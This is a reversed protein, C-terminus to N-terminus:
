LLNLVLQHLEQIARVNYAHFNNYNLLYPIRNGCSDNGQEMVFFKLEDISSIDQAIFGTQIDSEVYLPYGYQDLENENFNHNISYLNDSEDYCSVTQIFKKPKLQNIYNLSNSIDTENHKIIDDSSEYTGGYFRFM